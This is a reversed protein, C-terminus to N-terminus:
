DEYDYRYGKQEQKKLIKKEIRKEERKKYFHNRILNLIMSLVATVIGYGIMKYANSYEGECHVREPNEAKYFVTIEDGIQMDDEYYDVSGEYTAGDISFLVHVTNWKIVINNEEIRSITATTEVANEMFKDLIVESYVYGFIGTLVALFTILSFIRYGITRKM